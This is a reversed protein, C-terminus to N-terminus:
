QVLVCKFGAHEASLKASVAQSDITAPLTAAVCKGAKINFDITHSQGAFKPNTFLTISGSALAFSLPAFSFIAIALTNMMMLFHM